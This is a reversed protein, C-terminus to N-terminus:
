APFPYPLHVTLDFGRAADGSANITLAGHADKASTMLLGDHLAEAAAREGAEDPPQLAFPLGVASIESSNGAIDVWVSGTVNTITVSSKTKLWPITQAVPLGDYRKLGPSEITCSGSFGAGFFLIAMTFRNARQVNMPIERNESPGGVGRRLERLSRLGELNPM